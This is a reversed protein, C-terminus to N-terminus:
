TSAIYLEVDVAATNALALINNLTQGSVVVAAGDDIDNHADISSLDGLLVSKGAELKLQWNHSGSGAGDGDTFMVTIFNTDDLNTIRLYKVATKDYKGPGVLAASAAVSVLTTGGSSNTVNIIRSSIERISGVSLTTSGNRSVGNLTIKESVTVSLTSASVTSAM